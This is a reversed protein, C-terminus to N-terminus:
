RVLLNEQIQIWGEETLDTTDAGDRVARAETGGVNLTVLRTANSSPGGCATAKAEKAVLCVGYAMGPEAPKALFYSTGEHDAVFRASGPEVEAEYHDAPLAQNATAPEGLLDVGASGQSCGSVLFLVFVGALALSKRQM